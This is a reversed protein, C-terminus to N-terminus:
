QMQRGKTLDLALIRAARAPKQMWQLLSFSSNWSVQEMSDSSPDCNCWPCLHDRQILDTFSGKGIKNQHKLAWSHNKNSKKKKKKVETQNLILKGIVRVWFRSPLPLLWKKSVQIHFLLRQFPLVEALTWESYPILIFMLIYQSEEQLFSNRYFFRYDFFDAISYANATWM